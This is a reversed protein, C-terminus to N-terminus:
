VNTSKAVEAKDAVYIQVSYQAGIRRKGIEVGGEVVIDLYCDTFFLRVIVIATKSELIASLLLPKDTMIVPFRLKVTLSSSSSLTFEFRAEHYLRM